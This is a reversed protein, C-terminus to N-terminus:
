DDTTLQMYFKIYKQVHSIFYQMFKDPIELFFKFNEYFWYDIADMQLCVFIEIEM